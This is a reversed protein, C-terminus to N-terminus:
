FGSFSHSEAFSNARAYGRRAGCGPLNCFVHMEEHWDRLAFDSGETYTSTPLLADIVFEDDLHVVGELRFALEIETEFVAWATFKEEVQTLDAAELLVSGLEIRGVDEQGELVEVREVDEVSLLDARLM